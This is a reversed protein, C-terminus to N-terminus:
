QEHEVSGNHWLHPQIPYGRLESQYTLFEPSIHEDLIPRGCHPGTILSFVRSATRKQIHLANSSRLSPDVPSGANMFPITPDSDIPEQLEKLYREDLLHQSAIEILETNTPM